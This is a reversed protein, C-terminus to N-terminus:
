RRRPPPARLRRSQIWTCPQSSRDRSSQSPSHHCGRFNRIAREATTLAAAFTGLANHQDDHHHHSCQQKDGQGCREGTDVLLPPPLLFRLQDEAPFLVSEGHRLEMFLEVAVGYTDLLQQFGIADAEQALLIRIGHVPLPLPPENMHISGAHQNIGLVLRKASVAAIGRPETL